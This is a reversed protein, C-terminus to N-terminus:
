SEKIPKIEKDGIKEYNKTFLTIQIFELQCKKCQTYEKTQLSKPCIRLSNPYVKGGCNSCAVRSVRLLKHIKELDVM